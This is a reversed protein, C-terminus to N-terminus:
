RAAFILQTARAFAEDWMEGAGLALELDAFGVCKVAISEGIEGGVVSAQATWASLGLQAARESAQKTTM